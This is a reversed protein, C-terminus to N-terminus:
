KWSSLVRAKRSNAAPIFGPLSADLDGSASMLKLMDRSWGIEYYESETTM